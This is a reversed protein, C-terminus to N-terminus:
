HLNKPEPLRKLIQAYRDPVLTGEIDSVRALHDVLSNETHVEMWSLIANVEDATPELISHSEFTQCTKAKLRNSIKKLNGFKRLKRLYAKESKKDTFGKSELKRETKKAIWSPLSTKGFDVKAKNGKIRSSLGSWMGGTNFFPGMQGYTPGQEKNVVRNEISGAFAAGFYRLYYLKYQVM